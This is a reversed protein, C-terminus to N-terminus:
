KLPLELILLKLFYVNRPRLLLPLTPFTTKQLFCIWYFSVIWFLNWEVCENDSIYKIVKSICYKKKFKKWHKNIKPVSLSLAHVPSPCLSLSVCFRFCAGPEPWWGLAQRPARVGPGRSRSRASTPREVSQAVWAGRFYLIELLCMRIHKRHLNQILNTRISIHAYM